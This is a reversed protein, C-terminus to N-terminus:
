CVKLVVRRRIVRTTVTTEEDSDSEKERVSEQHLCGLLLTVDVLGSHTPNVHFTLMHYFFQALRLPNFIKLGCLLLLLIIYYVTLSKKLAELCSERHLVSEWRSKTSPGTAETRTEEAQDRQAATRRPNRGGPCRKWGKGPQKLRVEM